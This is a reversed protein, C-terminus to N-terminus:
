HPSFRGERALDARPADGFPPKRRKESVHRAYRALALENQICSPSINGPLPAKGTRPGKPFAHLLFIAVFLRGLICRRLKEGRIAAWPRVVAFDQRRRVDPSAIRSCKAMPSRRPIRWPMIKGRSSTRASRGGDWAVAGHVAVNHMAAGGISAGFAGGWPEWEALPTSRKREHRVHGVRM